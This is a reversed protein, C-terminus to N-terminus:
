HEDRSEAGSLECHVHGMLALSICGAGALFCALHALIARSNGMAMIRGWIPVTAIYLYVGSGFALFSGMVRHGPEVGYTIATGLVCTLSSAANCALAHRASMGGESVLLIHDSLEQALEHVVASLAVTWGSTAGCLKFAFGIMFGDTVNHFSDGIMIGWALPRASAICGDARVASPPSPPAPVPQLSPSAAGAEGDGSCCEEDCTRFKRERRVIAALEAAISLLFGLVMIWGFAQTGSEGEGFLHVAEPMLLLAAVSLLSGSAFASAKTMSIRSQLAPALVSIAILTSSATMVSAGIAVGASASAHAGGAGAVTTNSAAALVPLLWLPRRREMCFLLSLVYVATKIRRSLLFPM